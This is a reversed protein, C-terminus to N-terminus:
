GDVGWSGSDQLAVLLEKTQSKLVEYYSEIHTDQLKTLPNRPDFISGFKFIASSNQAEEDKVVQDCYDLLSQRSATGGGKNKAFSLALLIANIKRQKEEYKEANTANM